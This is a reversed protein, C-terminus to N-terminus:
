DADEDFDAFLREMGELIRDREADAAAIVDHLQHLDTHDEIAERVMSVMLDPPVAEAQATDIRGEDEWRRSRSDSSKPPATEIGHEEVQDLTLAVRKATFKERAQEIGLEGAVFSWADDRMHDYISEGSPDYDGVHLFVTGGDGNWNVARKAIQHTVTVGPFGGTAFTPVGYKQAEKALMPGMGVTECWLEIRTEQGERLPRGYHEGAERLEDWFEQPSEYGGNGSSHAATKDDRLAGFPIMQSRRAKVLHECLRAYAKETKDFGHQGVLVYFVQRATMPLQARYQDLVQNVQGLLLLTDPKPNWDMYGKARDAM